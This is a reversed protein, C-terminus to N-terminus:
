VPSSGMMYGPNGGMGVNSGAAADPAEPTGIPVGTITSIAGYDNTGAVLDGFMNWYYGDGRYGYKPDGVGQVVYSGRPAIVQKKGGFMGTALPRNATEFQGSLPATM